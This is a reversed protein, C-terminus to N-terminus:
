SAIVQSAGSYNGWVETVVQKFALGRRNNPSSTALIGTVIKHRRTESSEWKPVEHNPYLIKRVENALDVTEKDLCAAGQGIWEGIRQLSEELHFLYEHNAGAPGQRRAIQEAMDKLPAPGLYWLNSPTAIYTLADCVAPTHSCDATYIDLYARVNYVRERENLYAEVMQTEVTATVKYAVGWTVAGEQEELTLSRGPSDPTGRFDICAQHFARRYNKVYGVVCEEYSFNPKWILSGYGFVWLVM